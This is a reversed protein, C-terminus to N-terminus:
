RLPPDASVLVATDVDYRYLESAKGAIEVRLEGHEVDDEARLRYEGGSTCTVHAGSAFGNQTQRLPALECSQSESRRLIIGGSETIKTAFATAGLYDIAPIWSGGPIRTAAIHPMGDVTVTADPLLLGGSGIYLHPAQSGAFHPWRLIIHIHPPYDEHGLPNNTDFGMLHIKGLNHGAIERDLGLDRVAERLGFELNLAAQRQV